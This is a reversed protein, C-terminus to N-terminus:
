SDFLLLAAQGWARPAQQSPPHTGSSRPRRSQQCKTTRPLLWQIRLPQVLRLARPPRQPRPLPPEGAVCGQSRTTCTGFLRVWWPSLSSCPSLSVQPNRNALILYGPMRSNGQPSPKGAVAGDSLGSDDSSSSAVVCTLYGYGLITIRGSLEDTKRLSARSIHTQPEGHSQTTASSAARHQTPQSM